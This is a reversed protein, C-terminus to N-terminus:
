VGELMQQIMGNPGMYSLAMSIVRWAIYLLVLVYFIRPLWEAARDQSRSALEAEARAWRGMELDLTGTQEATDIASAMSVPLSGTSKLAPALASGEEVKLAAVESAAVLLASQSAQGAMRLVDSIRLAALLGTQFVQCFRALAWHRRAGGLLPISNLIRDMGPSAAALRLSFWWGIALVGLVFWVVVLRGATQLLYDTFGGGGMLKTFDPFLVGVHLLLLPYILAGIAKDRSKQRLEFYSALHECSDELRGGKEGASLLSVELPSVQLANHRVISETLGLRESLGKKIGNLFNRLPIPPHQELLLEVSRDLHMGAGLLKAFEHYLQARQKNTM